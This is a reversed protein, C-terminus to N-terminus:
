LRGFLIGQWTWGLRTVTDRLANKTDNTNLQFEPTLTLSGRADKGVRFTKTFKIEQGRYFRFGLRGLGQSPDSGWGPAPGSPDAGWGLERDVSRVTKTDDHLRMLIRFDKPISQALQQSWRPDDFKWAAFLDMEGDAGPQVRWPLEDSNLGLLARRLEEASVPTVGPSPRQSGTLGDFLGMRTDGPRNASRCFVMFAAKVCSIM